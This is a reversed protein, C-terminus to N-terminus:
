PCILIEPQFLTKFNFYWPTMLLALLGLFKHHNHGYTQMLKVAIVSEAKANNQQVFVLFDKFVKCGKFVKNDQYVRLAQQGKFVKSAKFVRFVKLGRIVAAVTKEIVKM